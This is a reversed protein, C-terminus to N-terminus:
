FTLEGNVRIEETGDERILISYEAGEPIDVVKIFSDECQANEGFIELVAILDKDARTDVEDDDPFDNFYYCHEKHYIAGTLLYHYFGNGLNAFQDEPKYFPENLYHIKKICKAGRKILAILALPSLNFGAGNDNIAVKM